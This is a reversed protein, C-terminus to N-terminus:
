VLIAVIMICLPLCKSKAVSFDHKLGGGQNLHHRDDLSRYLCGNGDYSGKHWTQCGDGSTASGKDFNWLGLGQNM